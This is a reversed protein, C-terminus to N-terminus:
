LWFYKNVLFEEKNENDIWIDRKLNVKTPLSININLLLLEWNEERIFSLYFVGYFDDM